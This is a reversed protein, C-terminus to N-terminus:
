KICGRKSSVLFSRFRNALEMPRIKPRDLNTISGPRIHLHIMHPGSDTLARLLFDTFDQLNDTEMATAYGCAWAIQSFAAPSTRQGGTSDYVGNDLLVHILNKPANAGITALNGMKMLTAGDGDLIMVPLHTNLAVGLGIASASGMSGIQYFHQDRDSITFLERGCKGTTAIIAASDPILNLLCELASARTPLRTYQHCFSITRRGIPTQIMRALSPSEEGQERGIILDQTMVLAFPLRYRQMATRADTLVEKLASLTSPFLRNPIRTLELFPVTLQGILTHQPEDPYGPQGRWTMILLTPIRFPWNLSTIPNITNGLGSNQCLTVTDLGALWAGASIAVAEGESTASIYTVSPEQTLKKILAKLFSCPVGTYFTFGNQVATTLFESAQIM